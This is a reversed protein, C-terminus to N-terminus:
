NAIKKLQKKYFSFFLAYSFSIILLAISTTIIGSVFNLGLLIFLAMIIKSNLQILPNIINIILRSVELTIKSIIESSSNQAHYLYNKLLYYKYLHNSFNINLKKCFNIIIKSVYISLINNVMFLITVFCISLFLIKNLSFNELFSFKDYINQVNSTNTIIIIFPGFSLISLIQLISSLLIIGQLYLLEIKYHKFLIRTLLKFKPTLM